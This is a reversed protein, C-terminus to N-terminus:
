QTLMWIRKIINHLTATVYLVIHPIHSHYSVASPFYYKTRPSLWKDQYTHLMIGASLFHVKPFARLCLINKAQHLQHGNASCSNLLNITVLAPLKYPPHICSAISQSSVPFIFEHILHGPKPIYTSRIYKYLATCGESSGCDTVVALVDKTEPHHGTLLGPGSVMRDENASSLKFIHM